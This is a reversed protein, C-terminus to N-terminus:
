NQTLKKWGQQGDMCCERASWLARMILTPTHTKPKWTLSCEKNWVDVWAYIYIYIYVKLCTKDFIVSLKLRKCKKWLTWMNKCKTDWHWTLNFNLVTWFEYHKYICINWTSEVSMLWWWSFFSHLALDLIQINNIMANIFNFLFNLLIKHWM